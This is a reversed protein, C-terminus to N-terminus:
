SYREKVLEQLVLGAPVLTAAIGVIGTNGDIEVTGETGPRDNLARPDKRFSVTQGNKQLFSKM